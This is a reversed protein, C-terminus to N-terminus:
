VFTKQDEVYKIKFYLVVSIIIYLPYTIASVVSNILVSWMGLDYIKSNFLESFNGTESWSEFFIIVYPIAMIAALIISILIMILIFLVFAGVAPWFDKHVLTFTRGIAEIANKEEAVVITAGPILVTGLYIMAIITGVFLALVGIIAGVILIFTSLILFFIMHIAYKRISEIFLEGSKVEANQDSQLIYNILFANLLGYIVVSLVSFIAVKGMLDSYLAMLENPNDFGVKSLEWFGLQYLAIQIAFIAVFSYVFLTFFKKLYINLGNTLVSDVEMAKYLSHQKIDIM